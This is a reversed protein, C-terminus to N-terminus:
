WIDRAYMFMIIANVTDRAPSNIYQDWRIDDRRHRSPIINDRNTIAVRIIKFECKVKALINGIIKSTKTAQSAASPKDRSTITEFM